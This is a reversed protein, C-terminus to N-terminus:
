SLKVNPKSPPLKSEIYMLHEKLLDREIFKNDLLCKCVQKLTEVCIIILDIMRKMFALMTHVLIDLNVLGM